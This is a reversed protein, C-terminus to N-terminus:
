RTSSRPRTYSFRVVLVFVGLSSRVGGARNECVGGDVSSDRSTLGVVRTRRESRLAQSAPTGLGFVAERDFTNVSYVATVRFVVFHPRVVTELFDVPPCASELSRCRSAVCSGISWM